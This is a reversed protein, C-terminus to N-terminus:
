EHAPLAQMAFGAPPSSVPSELASSLLPIEPVDESPGLLRNLWPTVGNAPLPKAFLYGQGYPCGLERLRTLQDSTEIGEAVTRISLANGLTVVARSLPSEGGPAGLRDIFSKDIKIIDVPFQQLYSLSSYGTGFDDIALLVGLEKLARLSQITASDNGILVNETVELVLRHAPLGSFALAERVHELYRPERVERGSVNVTVSLGTVSQPSREWRVCAQCAERLVWRGISLILDSQEAIAIFDLPPVLGLRPHQWRVLAELGAIMGSDLAVIPQFNLLLEGREVAMRLDQELEVRRVVAAHMSTEFVVARHKGSSKAMYMALDANRVVEAATETVHAVAIGVSAGVFVERSDVSFTTRLAGLVREAVLRATDVSDVDELVIAFEDGGLRACTDSTRLLPKLRMATGRLLDDGAAHGFTDNVGKFNDLDIFLVAVSSDRRRNRDLAHEVRDLFLVRNPLGTLADHLAQHALQQETEQSRALAEQLRRQREMLERSTMDMTRELFARDVDGQHYTEDVADIFPQLTAPVAEVSGFQRRVQRTLLKHM